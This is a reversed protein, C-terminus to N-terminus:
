ARSAVVGPTEPASACLGSRAAREPDDERATSAGFVVLFGDGTYSTVHGGHDKVPHALRKLNADFIISIDEPDMHQIIATSGVINIFLLTVLKRQQEM